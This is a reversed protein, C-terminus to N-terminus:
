ENFFEIDRPPDPHDVRPDVDRLIDKKADGNSNEIKEKFHLWAFYKKNLHFCEVHHCEVNLAESLGSGPIVKIGVVGDPGDDKPTENMRILFHFNKGLGFYDLDLSSESEVYSLHDSAGSPGAGRTCWKDKECEYHFFIEVPINLDNKFKLDM